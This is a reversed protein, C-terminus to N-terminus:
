QVLAFALIPDINAQALVSVSANLQIQSLSLRASEYSFDASEINSKASELNIM